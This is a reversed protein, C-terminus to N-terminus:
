RALPSSRYPDPCGTPRVLDFTDARLAWSEVGQNRAFKRKAAEIARSEDRASRITVTGRPVLFPVGLINRYFHVSCDVMASELCAAVASLCCGLWFHSAILVVTASCASFTRQEAKRM